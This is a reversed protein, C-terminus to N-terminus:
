KYFSFSHVQWFLKFWKWVPTDSNLHSQLLKRRLSKRSTKSERNMKSMERFPSSARLSSKFTGSATYYKNNKNNNNNNEKGGLMTVM